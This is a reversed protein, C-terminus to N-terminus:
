DEDFNYFVADDLVEDVNNELLFKYIINPNFEIPFYILREFGLNIINARNWIYKSPKENNKNADQFNM